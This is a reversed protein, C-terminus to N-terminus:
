ASAARVRADDIGFESEDARDTEVDAGHDAIQQEGKERLFAVFGRRM